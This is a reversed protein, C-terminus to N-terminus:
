EGEDEKRSWVVYGSSCPILSSSSLFMITKWTKGQQYSSGLLYASRFNMLEALFIKKMVEVM